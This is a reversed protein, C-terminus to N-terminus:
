EDWEFSEDDGGADDLADLADLLWEVDRSQEAVDLNEEDYAASDDVDGRDWEDRWEEDWHDLEEPTPNELGLKQSTPEAEARPRKRRPAFEPLTYTRPQREPPRRRARQLADPNDRRAPRASENRPCSGASSPPPSAAESSAPLHARVLRPATM